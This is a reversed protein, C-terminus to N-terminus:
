LFALNSRSLFRGERTFASVCQRYFLQQTDCGLNVTVNESNLISDYSGSNQLLGGFTGVWCYKAGLSPGLLSKKQAITVGATRNAVFNSDSAAQTCFISNKDNTCASCDSIMFTDIAQPTPFPPHTNRSLRTSAAFLPACPLPRVGTANVRADAVRPSLTLFALLFLMMPSAPMPYAVAM